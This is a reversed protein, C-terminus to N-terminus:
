DGVTAASAPAGNRSGGNSCRRFDVNRSDSNRKVSVNRSITTVNSWPGNASPASQLTFTISFNTNSTGRAASTRYSLNFRKCGGTQGFGPLFFSSRWGEASSNQDVHVGDVEIQFESLTDTERWRYWADQNQCNCIELYPPLQGTGYDQKITGPKLWQSQESCIARYSMTQNPALQISGQVQCTSVGAVAAPAALAVTPVAWAAGLAVTRRRPMLTKTSDLAEPRAAANTAHNM